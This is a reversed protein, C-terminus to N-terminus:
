KTEKSLLATLEPSYAEISYDDGVRNIFYKDKCAEIPRIDLIQPGIFVYILKTFDLSNGHRLYAKVIQTGM